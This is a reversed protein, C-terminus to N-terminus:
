YEQRPFGMSLAVQCVVYLDHPQFSDSMVSHSLLLLIINKSTPGIKYLPDGNSTLETYSFSYVM